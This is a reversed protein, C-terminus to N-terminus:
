TLLAADSPWNLRRSVYPELSQLPAGALTNTDLLVVVPPLKQLYIDQVLRITAAGEGDTAPAMLFLVDSYHALLDLIDRFSCSRAPQNVHKELHSQVSRALEQGDAVLVVRSGAM